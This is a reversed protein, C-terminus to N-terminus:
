LVVYLANILTMMMSRNVSKHPCATLVALSQHVTMHVDLCMLYWMKVLLMSCLIYWISLIYFHCFLNILFEFLSCVTYVPRTLLLMYVHCSLFLFFTCLVRIIYFVFDCKSLIIVSNIFIYSLTLNSIVLSTIYIDTSHNHIQTCMRPTVASPQTSRSVLINIYYYAPILLPGFYM